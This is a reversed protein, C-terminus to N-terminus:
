YFWGLWLWASTQAFALMMAARATAHPNSDHTYARYAMVLAPLIVLSTAFVQPPLIWTWLLVLLVVIALLTVVLYVRRLGASSMWTALTRKGVQKDAVRDPYTTAMATTTVLLGYPLCALLVRLYDGEAGALVAYGFIPLVIGGIFGNAVEAFGNWALRLPPLSYMWGGGTGIVLWFFAMWNTVGLVIGLLLIGLGIGASVWGAIFAFQRTVMGKPLVGSGGSYRTKTTLADTEHDAYENMINVSAGCFATAVLGWVIALMNIEYGSGIAIATGLFYVLLMGFLILPRTLGFVAQLKRMSIDSQEIITESFLM